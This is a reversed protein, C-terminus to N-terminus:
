KLFSEALIVAVYDDYPRNPVQLSTPVLRLLGRPPNEIFFHKRALMTSNREDVVKVPAIGASEAVNVIDNLTDKIQCSDIVACHLREFGDGVRKVVAM